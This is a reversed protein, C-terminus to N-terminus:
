SVLNNNFVAVKQGEYHGLFETREADCMENEVTTLSTQFEASM